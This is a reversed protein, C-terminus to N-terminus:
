PLVAPVVEIGLAEANRRIREDFSLVNVQGLAEQFVLATALHLADLTRVPGVPFTGRARVTVQDSLDHVDWGSEAVDLLRLAALEDSRSIRGTARARSVGRACELLTLASTVVRDARNLETVVVSQAPEGLVWALIASPEVYLIM